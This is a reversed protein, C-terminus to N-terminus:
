FLYDDITTQQQLEEKRFLKHKRKMKALEDKTVDEKFYKKAMGGLNTLYFTGDDRPLVRLLKWGDSEFLDYANPQNERIGM